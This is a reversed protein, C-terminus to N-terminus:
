TPGIPVTQPLPPVPAAPVAGSVWRAFREQVPPRPSTRSDPGDFAHRSTSRAKRVSAIVRAPRAADLSVAQLAASFRPALSHTALYRVSQIMTNLQLGLASLIM